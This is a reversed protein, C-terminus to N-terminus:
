FRRELWWEADLAAQVGMGAATVAQKYHFDVNDGGAFVGEVSTTTPFEVLGESNLHAQALALGKQSTSMRTVVYGKEDLDVHGKLFTTAPIHGIAIFLGDASVEEETNTKMDKIVIAKVLNGDGVVKTVATNWKVSVKDKHDELVRKQMIKSARLSDRRHILTVSKAFKVLALTDEMAADGGGVIYVNKDRYFAADCVACTSVGRGIYEDEGPINLMRSEAGTAIIVAEAEYADEGVWLGFPRKSFDVRTVFRDVFEAGFKGAQERMTEMLLPGMVGQPFGPYNEVETTLMLQGGIKEGSFVLPQMQARASYIAAAYGAPGSGIIAIRRTDM